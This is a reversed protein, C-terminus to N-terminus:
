SRVEEVIRDHNQQYGQLVRSSKRSPAKHGHASSGAASGPRTGPRWSSSVSGPTQPSSEETGVVSDRRGYYSSPYGHGHGSTSAPSGPGSWGFSWRRPLVSGVTMMTTGSDRKPRADDYEYQSSAGPTGPASPLTSVVSISMMSMSLLSMTTATATPSVPFPPLM